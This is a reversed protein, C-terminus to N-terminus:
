SPTPSSRRDRVVKAPNGVAISFSPIEHLVLAAAGIICKEGVHNGIVAKNGIWSDAGIRVNMLEGEQERIPISLDAYGHQGFGSIINVDTAILVDNGITCLGLNSHLGIYVRQGIRISPDAMTVGFCICSDEGLYALTLKYFAFRFYNGLLGPILSFFQSYGYFAKKRGLVVSELVYLLWAPVVLLMFLAYLARKFFRM